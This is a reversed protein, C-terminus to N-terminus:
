SLLQDAAAELEKIQESNWRVIWRPDDQIQRGMWACSGEISFPIDSVSTLPGTPNM